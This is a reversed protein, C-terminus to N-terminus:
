CVSVLAKSIDHAIDSAATDALQEAEARDARQEAEYRAIRQLRAREEKGDGELLVKQLAYWESAKCMQKCELRQQRRRAKTGAVHQSDPSWRMTMMGSSLQKPMGYNQTHGAPDLM